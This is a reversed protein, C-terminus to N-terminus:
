SSKKYKEKKFYVDEKVRSFDVTRLQVSDGYRFYATGDFYELLVITDAGYPVLQNDEFKERKLKLEHERKPNGKVKILSDYTGITILSPSWLVMGDNVIATKKNQSCSFLVLSCCLLVVIKIRM